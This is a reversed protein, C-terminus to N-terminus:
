SRLRTSSSPHHQSPTKCFRPTEKVKSDGMGKKDESTPKQRFYKSPNPHIPM